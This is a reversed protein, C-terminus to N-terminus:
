EEGKLFLPINRRLLVMLAIAIVALQFVFLSVSFALYYQFFGLDILCAIATGLIHPIVLSIFISRCSVWLSKGWFRLLIIKKKEFEFLQFVVLVIFYCSVFIYSLVLITLDRLTNEYSDLLPKNRTYFSIIEPKITINEELYFNELESQIDQQNGIFAFGIEMTGINKQLVFIPRKVAGRRLTYTEFLEQKSEYVFYRETGTHNSLEMKYEQELEKPILIHTIKEDELYLAQNNEVVINNSTLYNKNIIFVRDSYELKKNERIITENIYYATPLESVKNTFSVREDFSMLAVNNITYVEEYRKITSITEKSEIMLVAIQAMNLLLVAIIFMYLAKIFILFGRKQKFSTQYSIKQYKKFMIFFAIAYGILHIAIIYLFIFMFGIFNINFFLSSLFAIIVIGAGLELLLKKVYTYVYATIFKEGSLKFLYMKKRQQFFELYIIIVIVLLLIFSLIVYKQLLMFLNDNAFEVDVQAYNDLGYTKLMESKFLINGNLIRIVKIKDAPFDENNMFRINLNDIDNKIHDNLISELSECSNKDVFFYVEGEPRTENVYLCINEEKSMEQLALLIETNTRVDDAKTRNTLIVDNQVVKYFTYDQLIGFSMVSVYFLFVLAVIKNLVKMSDRKRVYYNIMLKLFDVIM